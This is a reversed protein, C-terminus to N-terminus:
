TPIPTTKISPKQEYKLYRAKPELTKAHQIATTNGYTNYTHWNTSLWNIKTPAIKNYNPM